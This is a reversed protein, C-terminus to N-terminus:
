SEMRRKRLAAPEGYDLAVLVLAFVVAIMGIFLWSAPALGSFWCVEAVAPLVICGGGLVGSLVLLTTNKEPKLNRYVLRVAFSFGFVFCSLLVPKAFLVFVSLTESRFFIRFPIYLTYFGSLVLLLKAVKFEVSDRSILLFLITVIVAPLFTEQLFVQVFNWFFNAPYIRYDSGFLIAFVVYVAGCGLGLLAPFIDDRNAHVSLYLALFAPLFFVAFMWMVSLVYCLLIFDILM